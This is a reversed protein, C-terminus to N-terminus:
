RGLTPTPGPTGDPPPTGQTQTGGPAPTGTAPQEPLPQGDPGLAPLTPQGSRDHQSIFALLDALQEDSLTAFPPM